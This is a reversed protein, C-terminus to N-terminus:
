RRFLHPISPFCLPFLRIQCKSKKSFAQFWGCINHSYHLEYKYHQPRFFCNNGIEMFVICLLICFWEHSIWLHNDFSGHINTDTNLMNAMNSWISLLSYRPNQVKLTLYLWIKPKKIGILERLIKLPLTESSFCNETCTHLTLKMYHQNKVGTVLASKGPFHRCGPSSM